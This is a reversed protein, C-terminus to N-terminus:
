LQSAFSKKITACWLDNGIVQKQLLAVQGAAFVKDHFADNIASVNIRRSEPVPSCQSNYITLYAAGKVISDVDYAQATTAVFLAAAALLLTQTKINPREQKTSSRVSSGRMATPVQSGKAKYATSALWAEAVLM